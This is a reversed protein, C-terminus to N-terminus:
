ITFKDEFFPVLYTVIIQSYKALGRACVSPFTHDFNDYNHVAWSIYNECCFNNKTRPVTSTHWNSSFKQFFLNSLCFVPFKRGELTIKIPLFLCVITKKCWRPAIGWFTATKKREMQDNEFKVWYDMLVDLHSLIFIHQQKKFDYSINQYSFKKTSDRQKSALHSSFGKWVRWCCVNCM